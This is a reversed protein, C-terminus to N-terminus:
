EMEDGRGNGAEAKSVRQPINPPVPTQRRSTHGVCVPALRAAHNGAVAACRKYARARRQFQRRWSHADARFHHHEKPPSRLVTQKQGMLRSMRISRPGSSGATKYTPEGAASAFYTTTPVNCAGRNREGKVMWKGQWHHPTTQICEADATQGAVAVM